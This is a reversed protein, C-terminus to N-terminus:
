RIWSQILMMIGQRIHEPTLDADKMWEVQIKKLANEYDKSQIVEAKVKADLSTLKFRQELLDLERQMKLYGRQWRGGTAVISGPTTTSLMFSAEQSKMDAVSKLQTLMSDVYGEKLYPNAKILAQQARMLDQKIGSEEVKQNTLDTQAQLLRSQQVQTAINATAAQFNGAQVDPYRPASEMNGASGQGYVLNPNLGADRFRAMQAAPTNYDLQYQLLKMNHAHQRDALKLNQNTQVKAGIFNSVSNIAAGLGAALWPGM